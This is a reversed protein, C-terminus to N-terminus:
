QKWEITEIFHEIDTRIFAIVPNLSDRNPETNFYLAGRIFHSSSDTVFFQISSAVNGRIDYLIGFRRNVTDLHLIEDIGDARSTHKYVLERSDEIYDGVNGNVEKYSIHITADFSPYFINYWYPESFKSSDAIIVSYAPYEFTFPADGRFQVWSKQPYDIRLYGAPKPIPVERCSTMLVFLLLILTKTPM